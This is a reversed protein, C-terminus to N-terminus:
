LLSRSVLGHDQLRFLTTELYEPVNELDEEQFLELVKQLLEDATMPAHRLQRILETQLPDLLHTSGTLCDYAVAEDQDPWSKLLLGDPHAIFWRQM